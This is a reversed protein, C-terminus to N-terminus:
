AILVLIPLKIYNFPLPKTTPEPHIDTAWNKDFKINLFEYFMNENYFEYSYHCFLYVVDAVIFLLNKQSNLNWMKKGSSSVCIHSKKIWRVKWQWKNWRKYQSSSSRMEACQLTM